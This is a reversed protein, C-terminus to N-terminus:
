AILLRHNARQWLSRVAQLPVASERSHIGEAGDL